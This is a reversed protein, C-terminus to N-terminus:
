LHAQDLVLRGGRPVDGRGALVAEVRVHVGVDIVRAPTLGALPADALEDLALGQREVAVAVLHGRQVRPHVQLLVISNFRLCQNFSPTPTAAKTGAPTIAKRNRVLRSPALGMAVAM